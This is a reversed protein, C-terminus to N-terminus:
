RMTIVLSQDVFKAGAVKGQIGVPLPIVRRQDGAEVLLETGGRYQYLKIESKDFGPMLLTVLKKASDFKVPLMLNSHSSSPSSLLEQAQKSASSLVSNWDIPSSLPLHPISAFAMPSLKEKVRGISDESVDPFSVGFAGSILGGSQITRGWFRLASDVSTPNQPDMVLFCSFKRPELFAASGRLLMEDLTDWIKSSTNSVISQNETLSMADDVLRIVSPGALRGLDTKEAISRLYKLYLRAKSSAGIMRLTEESSIGDYVIVDYHETGCSGLSKSGTFRVFRELAYLSFISDMGPLVGLEEGVVGELVGQTLNLQSDAERLRKLPELLMKTTELKTVSLNSNCTVPSPGIKCGLLHEATSDQSHVVLCTNLGMKAYHQAAFISSTTKGSGGKGLFTVLKTSKGENGDSGSSASPTTASAVIVTSPQLTSGQQPSPFPFPYSLKTTFPFSALAVVM